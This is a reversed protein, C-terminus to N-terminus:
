RSVELEQPFNRHKVRKLHPHVQHCPVVFPYVNLETLMILISM